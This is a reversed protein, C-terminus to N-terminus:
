ETDDLTLLKKYDLYIQFLETLKHKYLNYTGPSKDKMKDLEKLDQGAKLKKVKKIFHQFVSHNSIHYFTFRRFPEDDPNELARKIYFHLKGYYIELDCKNRSLTLEGDKIIYEDMWRDDADGTSYVFFHCDELFIVMEQLAFYLNEMAISIVDSLRELDLFFRHDEFCDIQWDSNKVEEQNCFHILRKLHDPLAEYIKQVEGLLDHADEKILLFARGYASEYFPAVQDFTLRFRGYFPSRQNEKQRGGLGIKPDIDKFPNM